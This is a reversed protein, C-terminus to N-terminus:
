RVVLRLHKNHRVERPPRQALCPVPMETGNPPVVFLLLEHQNHVDSSELVRRVPHGELHEPRSHRLRVRLRSLGPTVEYDRPPVLFKLLLMLMLMPQVSIPSGACGAAAVRVVLIITVIVAVFVAMIIM